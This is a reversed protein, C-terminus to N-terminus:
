EHLRTAFSTCIPTSVIPDSYQNLRCTRNVLVRAFDDRLPRFPSSLTVSSIAFNPLELTIAHDLRNLHVVSDGQVLHPFARLPLPVLRPPVPPHQPCLPSARFGRLSSPWSEIMIRAEVLSSFMGGGLLEDCLRTNFSEIYGNEWTSGPTIYASQAGM